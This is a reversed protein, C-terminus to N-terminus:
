ILRDRLRQKTASELNRATTYLYHPSVCFSYLISRWLRQLRQVGEMPVGPTETYILTESLKQTVGTFLM